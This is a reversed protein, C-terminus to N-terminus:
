DKVKICLAHIKHPIWEALAQYIERHVVVRSKGSFCQASIIVTYHGGGHVNGPHGKHVSSDDKVIIDTTSFYCQLRDHIQSLVAKGKKM